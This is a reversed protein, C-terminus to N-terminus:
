RIKVKPLGVNVMKQNVKQCADYKIRGRFNWIFEFELLSTKIKGLLCELLKRFIEGNKMSNQLFFDRPCSKPVWTKKPGYHNSTLAYLSLLNKIQIRSM